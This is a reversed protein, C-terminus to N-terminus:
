KILRFLDRCFRKMSKPFRPTEEFDEEGKQDNVNVELLIVGTEAELVRLTGFISIYCSGLPGSGQAREFTYVKLIVQYPAEGESVLEMGPSYVNFTDFFATEMLQVLEEYGDGAWTQFDGLKEKAFIGNNVFRAQSLDIVYTATVDQKFVNLSGKSVKLPKAAFLSVSGLLLASILLIKRMNNIM